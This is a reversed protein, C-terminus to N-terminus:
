LIKWWQGFKLLLFFLHHSRHKSNITFYFPFLLDNSLRGELDSSHKSAAYRLAYNLLFRSNTFQIWLFWDVIGSPLPQGVFMGFSGQIPNKKKKKKGPSCHPSQQHFRKSRSSQVMQQGLMWIARVPGNSILIIVRWYRSVTSTHADRGKGTLYSEWWADRLGRRDLSLREDSEDFAGGGRRAERGDLEDFARGDPGDFVGRM